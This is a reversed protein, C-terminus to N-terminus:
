DWKPTLLFDRINKHKIGNRSMNIEDLSIVYKPFNDSVSELASFEREITSESALLYSVQIYLRDNRDECVFDIEKEGSKGVSVKYGRRLLEMYVINELVQNIDSTNGGFVAERVGHDAVYYKENIMLLKKGQLDQRRVRYILFADVCFSLYNM